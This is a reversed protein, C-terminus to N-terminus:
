ISEHKNSFCSGTGIFDWSWHYYCCADYSSSAVLARNKIGMAEERNRNASAFYIIYRCVGSGSGMYAFLNHNFYYFLSLKEHMVGEDSVGDLLDNKLETVEEKDLDYQRRPRELPVKIEKLTTFPTDTIVFIRDSLFLAESIDHTIFLITSQQQEWQELLWEQMYLRTMADLASFPEDLLLVNSGSLTARLLFGTAADGLYNM